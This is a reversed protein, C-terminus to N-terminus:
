LTFDNAAPSSLLNNEKLHIQLSDHDLGTELILRSSSLSPAKLGEKLVSATIFIRAEDWLNQEIFSQLLQAGGEVMLSLIKADYLKDLVQTIVNNNFDIQVFHLKGLVENKHQNIIWTPYDQALLHHSAPLKLDKDLAIRLPQNGQGYRSILQPNDNLATTFGVMIASEERRWQHSIRTSYEDSMQFRSRDAPAFYGNETQAWKLMIYPRQQRHFTFFRRNLWDGEEESVGTQVEIGNDKLIQIGKGAVLDFPDKNCIVVRKVGEQVIRNACPPTKGYHACPELSVYMTAEPILHKYAAIVSEFCNVEAHAQGYQQHFGEGIIRDQYVLVAGVLPNPATNGLGQAALQLCRQMYYQDTM